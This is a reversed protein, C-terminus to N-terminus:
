EQTKDFRGTQNPRGIVFSMADMGTKHLDQGPIRLLSIEPPEPEPELCFARNAGPFIYKGSVSM